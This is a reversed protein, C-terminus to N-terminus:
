DAGPDLIAAIAEPIEYDPWAQRFRELEAAAAADEGAAKLEVIRQLWTDPTEDTEPMAEGLAMSATTAVGAVSDEVTKKELKERNTEETALPVQQYRLDVARQRDTEDASRDAVAAPEAVPASATQEPDAPQLDAGTAPPELRTEAAEAGAARGDGDIGSEPVMEGPATEEPAAQFEGPAVSKRGPIDQRDPAAASDRFGDPADRAPAAPPPVSEPPAAPDEPLQMVIALGLVVVAATTVAHVWGINWPLPSKREVARRARSLVAQDLLAPPEEPAIDRYTGALEELDRDLRGNDHQGPKM